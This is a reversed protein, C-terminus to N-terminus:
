RVELRKGFRVICVAVVEVFLFVFGAFLNRQNVCGGWGRGRDGFGHGSSSRAVARKSDGSGGAGVLV